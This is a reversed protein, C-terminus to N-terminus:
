DWVYREDFEVQYRKLFKRFEDKFSMRRHHEEQNAIYTEVRSVASQGISFAGYGNQWHFKDLAAGKTKLWRSTPVKIDEILKALAITRSMLCLVHVHDEAGGIKIPPCQINKLVTAMYPYLEGRIGPGLCPIREKTSFIIHTLLRAHSQPM